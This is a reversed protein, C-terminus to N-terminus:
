LGTTNYGCDVFMIEGTIGSALPSCLFAATNGVELADVNRHLPAREEVANLIKSFDGIGRAALTKIPGASIANVRIKQAGLDSALYRVAAELAAKAVGMINYNPFVKDAGYYTLTLIAGGDTMLPAAARTLAILSYASVDHAVRFDERTTQVVTNKINPAFGISHVLIDLKGYADKLQAFVTDIQEDSSVDCAFTRAATGNIAGLEAALAEADKQLRESQYCIALTAGAESLKQCIAWAISRKNALGFVVAIKGKLDIM